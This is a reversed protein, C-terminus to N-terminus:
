QADMWGDGGRQWRSAKTKLFLINVELELWLSWKLSYSPIPEPDIFLKTVM